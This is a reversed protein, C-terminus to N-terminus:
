QSYPGGELDGPPRMIQSYIEYIEQYKDECEQRLKAGMDDPYVDFEFHDRYHLSWVLIQALEAESMEVVAEHHSKDIRTAEM